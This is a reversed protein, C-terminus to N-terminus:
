SGRTRWVLPESTIPNVLSASFMIPTGIQQCTTKSLSPHAASDQPISRPTPPIHSIQALGGRGSRRHEKQHFPRYAEYFFAKREQKGFSSAPFQSSNQVQELLPRVKQYALLYNHFSTAFCSAGSSKQSRKQGQCRM